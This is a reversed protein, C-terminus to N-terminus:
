ISSYQQFSATKELLLDMSDVVLSHFHDVVDDQSTLKGKGKARAGQSQDATAVLSLLKNTVLLVRESFADLDQAFGHDMSRHFAVDSPLAVAKRTTTLATAQLQTNFANFGASALLGEEM